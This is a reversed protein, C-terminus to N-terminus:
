TPTYLQALPSWASQTQQYEIIAQALRPGTVQQDKLQVIEMLGKGFWVLPSVGDERTVTTVEQGALRLSSTAGVLIPKTIHERVSSRAVDVNPKLTAIELTGVLRDSRRVEWLKGDSILSLNDDQHFAAVTESSDNLHLQLDNNLVTAPALGVPVPDPPPAAQKGCGALVLAGLLLSATSRRV